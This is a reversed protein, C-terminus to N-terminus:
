AVKKGTQSDVVSWFAGTKVDVKFQEKMGKEVKTANTRIFNMAQPILDFSDVEVGSCQVRFRKPQRAKEILESVM